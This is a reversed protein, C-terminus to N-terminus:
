LNIEEAVQSQPNMSNATASRLADACFTLRFTTLGESRSMNLEGGFDLATKQVLALGLGIGEPKTTFFPEIIRDEVESSVGPGDDTVEVVIHSGSQSSNVRICGDPGAADIANMILNLVAGRIADSDDIMGDVSEIDTELSIGNHRCMPRVLSLTEHLIEVVGAPTSSRSEDRTLRLLGKIQEETLRLQKLAVELAEDDRQSCHRSHLQLSMRAGTLANRLQHSLGGAVQAILNAKETERIQRAATELAMCMRNVDNALEALEDDLNHVSVREFSGRAIRAVQDQVNRIRHGMRRAILTSAFLTFCLAGAGIVLPPYVANWRALMWRREPYLVVVSEANSSRLLNVKGAFFEEDGLRVLSHGNIFGNGLPSTSTPPVNELLQQFRPMTATTPRGSQDFVVFQAGSLLHLEDLVNQTLPFTADELTTLVRSLRELTEREVEKVSMWAFAVSIVTLTLIQIGVFPFLIQNRIPWRMDTREQIVM